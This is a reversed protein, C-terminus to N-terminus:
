ITTMKVQMGLGSPKHDWAKILFRLDLDVGTPVNIRISTKYYLHEARYAEQGNVAM